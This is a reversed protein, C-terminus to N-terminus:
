LRSRCHPTNGVCSLIGGDQPYIILSSAKLSDKLEGEAPPQQLAYSLAQQATIQPSEDIDIDSYFGGLSSRIKGGPFVTMVYEGGKVPVDKYYQKYRIYHVGRKERAQEVRLEDAADRKKILEQIELLFANASALPEEGFSRPEEFTIMDARKDKENWNVVFSDGFRNKLEQEAALQSSDPRAQGYLVSIFGMLLIGFSSIRTYM